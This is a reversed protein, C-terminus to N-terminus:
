RDLVCSQDKRNEEIQKREKKRGRLCTLELREVVKALKKNLVERSSDFSYANKVQKFFSFLCLKM